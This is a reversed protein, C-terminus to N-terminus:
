PGARLLYGSPSPSFGADVLVDHWSTGRPPKGDISVLYVPDRGAAQRLLRTLPAPDTLHEPTHLSRGTRDMYGVLRGAHIFVRAGPSRRPRHTGTMAPWPIHSGFPNAPDCASLVAHSEEASFRRWTEEAGDAAYITGAHPEWLEATLAMGEAALRALLPQLAEYGTVTRPSLIGTRDLLQRARAREREAEPAFGHAPGSLLKWRGSGGPPARKGAAYRPHPRRHHRSAIPARRARLAQLSDSSVEGNWVLKWLSRLIDDPFGGLREVLGAFDLSEERLLLDRIRQERHGDAFASIRGLLPFDDRTFVSIYGDHRGVAHDGQWLLEGSGILEDLHLPSYGRIRAPLISADLESFPM